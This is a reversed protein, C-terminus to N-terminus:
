IEFFRASREYAAISEAQRNQSTTLQPLTDKLALRNNAALAIPCILTFLTLSKLHHQM